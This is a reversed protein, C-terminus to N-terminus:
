IHRIINDIPLKGDYLISQNCFDYQLGPQVRILFDDGTDPIQGPVFFVGQVFDELFETLFM